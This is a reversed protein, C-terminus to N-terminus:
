LPKRLRRFTRSGARAGLFTGSAELLQEFGRSVVLLDWYVLVGPAIFVLGWSPTPCSAWLQARHRCRTAYTRVMSSHALMTSVPLIGPRVVTGCSEEFVELRSSQSLAAVACAAASVFRAVVFCVSCGLGVCFFYPASFVGSGGQVVGFVRLFHAVMQSEGQTLPQSAPAM